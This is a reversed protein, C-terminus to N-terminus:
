NDGIQGSVRAIEILGRILDSRTRRIIEYGAWHVLCHPSLQFLSNIIM